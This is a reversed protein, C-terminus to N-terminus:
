KIPTASTYIDKLMTKCCTQIQVCITKCECENPKTFVLIPRDFGSGAGATAGNECADTVAQGTEINGAKQRCGPWLHAVSPSFGMDTTLVREFDGPRLELARFAARTQDNQNWYKRKYSSWPQPELVFRGGPRLLAFVLSFFRM